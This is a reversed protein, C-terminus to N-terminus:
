LIAAATIGLAAIAQRRSIGIVWLKARAGLGAGGRTRSSANKSANKAGGKAAGKKAIARVTCRLGERLPGRRTMCAPLSLLRRGGGDVSRHSESEANHSPM